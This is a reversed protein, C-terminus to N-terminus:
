ACTAARHAEGLAQAVTFRPGDTIRRRYAVAAPSDASWLGDFRELWAGFDFDVRLADVFIGAASVGYLRSRAIADTPPRVSVRTIVGHRAGEFNAMGAAGNNIVFRSGVVRLAPACTHSCAFGDVAAQEFAAVLLPERAPDHLADHAFRWGALSWADGHVIAIRAAGVEVVAHMPLLVAADDLRCQRAVTRLREIIANSREVDGDPVSEPYACGCGAARDDGGLETEVNGRLAINPQAAVRRRIEAFLAPDADFWHFDGNFVLRPRVPEQAALREIADLAFGNGYLGGIVYITDEVFQAARAFVRPSYGYRPPCVRGPITARQENDTTRQGHGAAARQGGLDLDNRGTRPKM